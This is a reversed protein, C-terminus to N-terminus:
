LRKYTARRCVGKMRIKAGPKALKYGDCVLLVRADQLGDVHRFSAFLACLLACHVAAGGRCPSTTVIVTLPLPQPRQLQTPEPEPEPEPAPVPAPVSVAAALSASLWGTACCGTLTLAAVTAAAM